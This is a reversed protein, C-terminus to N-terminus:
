RWRFLAVGPPSIACIMGIKASIGSEPISPSNSPSLHISSFPEYRFLLSRGRKKLRIGAGRHVQPCGAAGKGTWLTWWPSRRARFRRRPFNRARSGPTRLPWSAGIMRGALAPRFMTAPSAGVAERAIAACRRRFAQRCSMRRKEESRRNLRRFARGGPVIKRRCFGAWFFFAGPAMPSRRYLRSM